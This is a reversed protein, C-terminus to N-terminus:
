WDKNDIIYHIDDVLADNETIARLIFLQAGTADWGEMADFIPELSKANEVNLYFRALDALMEKDNVNYKDNLEEDLFKLMATKLKELVEKSKM